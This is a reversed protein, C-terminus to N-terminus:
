HNDANHSGNHVPPPTNRYQKNNDCQFLFSFRARIFSAPDTSKAKDGYTVSLVFVLVCMERSGETCKANRCTAAKKGEVLVSPRLAFVNCKSRANLLWQAAMKMIKQISM